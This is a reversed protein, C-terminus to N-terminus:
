IMAAHREHSFGIVAPHDEGVYAAVEWIGGEYVDAEFDGFACRPFVARFEEDPRQVVVTVFPRARSPREGLVLAKLAWAPDHTLRLALRMPDFPPMSRDGLPAEVTPTGHPRLNRDVLGCDAFRPDLPERWDAPLPMGAPAIWLELPPPFPM